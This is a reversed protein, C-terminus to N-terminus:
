WRDALGHLNKEVFGRSFTNRINYVDELTRLSQLWSMVKKRHKFSCRHEDCPFLFKGCIVCAPWMYKAPCWVLADEPNLTIMCPQGTVTFNWFEMIMEPKDPFQLRRHNAWPFFVMGGGWDAAERLRIWSGVRGPVEVWSSVQLCSAANENQWQLCDTLHTLDVLQYNDKLDRPQLPWMFTSMPSTTPRRLACLENTSQSSNNCPMSRDPPDPLVPAKHPVAMGLRDHMVRTQSATLFRVTTASPRSSVTTSELSTLNPCAHSPFPTPVLQM